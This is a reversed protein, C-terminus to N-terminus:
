GVTFGAHMGSQYHGPINCILVYDGAALDVALTETTDPDFAEIEGVVQVGAAAEDVSGESVPLEDPAVDSGIVLFEHPVEGANSVTFEVRGAAASSASPTVSFEALDVSVTTEAAGGGDGGDEGGCAAAALVLATLGALLAVRARRM